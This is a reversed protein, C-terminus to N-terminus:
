RATLRQVELLLDHATVPKHMLTIRAVRAARLPEPTTDGTVLILKASPQLLRVAQLAHLGHDSGGLRYDSIVVDLRSQQAVAIASSSGNALHVVGGL